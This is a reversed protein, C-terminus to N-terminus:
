LARTNGAIQMVRQELAKLGEQQIEMRDGVQQRITRDLCPAGKFGRDLMGPLRNGLAAIGDLTQPRRAILTPVQLCGDALEATFEGRMIVLRSRGIEMDIDLACGSTQSRDDAVFDDAGRDLSHAVCEDVCARLADFHLDPIVGGFEPQADAVVSFSDVRLNKMVTAVSM